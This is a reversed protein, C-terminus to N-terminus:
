LIILKSVANENSMLPTNLVRDCMKAEFITDLFSIEFTTILQPKIFNNSCKLVSSVKFDGLPM